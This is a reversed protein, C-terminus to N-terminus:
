ATLERGEDVARSLVISLGILFWIIVAVKSNTTVADLLGHVLYVSYGALLGIALWGTRAGRTRLVNSVAICLTTTVLGIFAVLGPLGYDVGMQLYINHAHPIPVAPDNLFLPYLLPVSQAFPGLGIGTFPFDQWIYLARSWVEFRSAATNTSDSVLLVETVNAPGLWFVAAVGLLAAAAALWILRPARWLLLIAGAVLLGLIAGRSQTLVVISSFFVAFALVLGRQRRSLTWAWAFAIPLAPAVAGAVLNATFGSSNLFPFELRPMYEYMFPIPLFKELYRMGLWGVLGMAAGLLLFFWVGRGLRAAPLGNVIGYYLAVGGLLEGYIRASLASDVSVAVGVLGMLLLLVLPLD